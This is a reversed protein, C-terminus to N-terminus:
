VSVEEVIDCNDINVLLNNDIYFYPKIENFGRDTRGGPRINKTSYNDKTLEYIWDGDRCSFVIFFQWGEKIFPLVFDIKNNGLMVQKYGCHTNNITKVEVLIKEKDCKFDIESYKETHSFKCDFLNNIIPLVRAENKHGMKEDDYSYRKTYM